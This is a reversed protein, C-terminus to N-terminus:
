YSANGTFSIDCEYMCIRLTKTVAWGGYVIKLSENPHLARVFYRIRTTYSSCSCQLKDSHACTHLDPGPTYFHHPLLPFPFHLTSASTQSPLQIHIDEILTAIAHINATQTPTHSCYVYRIQPFHVVTFDIHKTHRWAVVWLIWFNLVCLAPCNFNRM